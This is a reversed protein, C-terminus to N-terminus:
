VSDRLGSDWGKFADFGTGIELVRTSFHENPNVATQVKFGSESTRSGVGTISFNGSFNISYQIVLGKLIFSPSYM